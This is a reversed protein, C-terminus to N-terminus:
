RCHSIVATVAYHDSPYRGDSSRTRNIEAEVSQFQATHLIYDIRSGTTGGEFGHFSREGNLRQRHVARYADAWRIAMPTEPRILAAYAEGDETDNLDCTLILPAGDAIGALERSLVKAGETRSVTGKHDFHANAFVLEFGTAVERLRVWSCIRPLAADWSKSGALNPHESLWFDGEAVPMFRDRRYGILCREGRLMGDDRARGSFSFGPWKESMVQYQDPLVEQFGILDPRYTHVTALLLESRKGWANEGDDAASNRVNFSMVRLAGTLPSGPHFKSDAPRTPDTLEGLATVGIVLLLVIVCAVEASVGM